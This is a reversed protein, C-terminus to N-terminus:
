EGLQGQHEPTNTHTKCELLTFFSFLFGYLVGPSLQLWWRLPFQTSLPLTAPVHHGQLPQLCALVDEGPHSRCERMHSPAPLGPWGRGSLHSDGERHQGHHKGSCAVQWRGHEQGVLVCHPTPLELRAARRIPPVLARRCRPQTSPPSFTPPSSTRGGAPRM